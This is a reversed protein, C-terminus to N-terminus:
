EKIFRYSLIRGDDKTLRIFYIGPPLSGANIPVSSLGRINISPLVIMGQLNIVELSQWKQSPEIRSVTILGKTPNPNLYIYILTSDLTNTRASVQSASYLTCVGKEAKVRYEGAQTATYTIGTATPTVNSWITNTLVQWTYIAAADANTVTLVNTNLNVIPQALTTVNMTIVNSTVVPTSTCGSSTIIVRVQANNQLSNSSFSASNTGANIGNVQWQYTPSSGANLAVATFTTNSASCINSSSTNISVSPNSPQLVTVLVTDRSFCSGNTATLVYATTSTPTAIPNAITANSLGIAPSWSYTTGGSGNLQTNTGACITVDNGANAIPSPTVVVSIIATDSLPLACSLSSTMAVSVLSINQLSNTTFIPSNTGANVGNVKWQYTPTSGGDTPTATFTVSTGACINSSSSTISVNPVASTNVTVVVTDISTCSGNTATLIYATTSTPTAIPNAINANILGASPIWSYTAGGSGILQTSSGACISVDNGANAIPAATVSMTISNSTASAPAACGLSSTMVVTVQDNNQLSSTTFTPSNTGANIGNVKWQYTPASGGNIPTATFTILSNSCLNNGANSAITVGSALSSNVSVMLVNSTINPSNLCNGSGYMTCTIQDGSNLIASTFTPSNSGINIGNLKWQYNPTSGGNLGTANFTILTPGCVTNSNTGISISPVGNIWYKAIKLSEKDGATAFGGVVYLSNCTSALGLVPFPTISDKDIGAGLISWNTGNWKAINRGTTSNPLLFSGGVYLDTGIFAISFVDRAFQNLGGGVGVWGTGNWKAIGNVIIGNVVVDFFGAIYIENASNIGIAKVSNNVGSAMASWSTGNWKAIKNALVGAITFRGGVYINGDSAVAIAYVQDNTGLGLPSWVSGNWKAINNCVIGGAQYFSGGVYLENNKVALAYVSNSVGNGVNTWSTGNWEALNNIGNGAISGGAYVKNGMVAIAYVEGAAFGSGLSDWKNGDWKAIRNMTLNGARTFKGGIYVNNGDVTVCNINDNVGNSLPRWASGDWKSISNYDAAQYNPLNGGALFFKSSIALSYVNSIPLGIGVNIWATGNWKAIKNITTNGCQTFDGAAYLNNGYKIVKNINNDFLNGVQVWNNGDWKKIVVVYNGTPNTTLGGYTIYFEGDLVMLKVGGQNNIVGGIFTWTTGDWKAINAFPVGQFDVFFGAVYVDLGNVVVNSIGGYYQSYSLSAGFNSWIAGNWKAIGNVATGNVNLFSGIMYINGAIDIDIGTAGLNGNVAGSVIGITSWNTGNWKYLGEVTTVFIDSGYKKIDTVIGNLGSGLKTWITGDWKAIHNVLLGGAKEFYGGVYAVNNDILINNVIGDVFSPAHGKVGPFAFNPDWNEDGATTVQNEKSFVPEGKKGYSLKYGDTKYSGSKGLNNKITGDLNLIDSFDNNVNGNTHSVKENIGQQANINFSILCLITLTLFKRM